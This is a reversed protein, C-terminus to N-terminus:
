TGLLKQLLEEVKALSAEPNDYDLDLYEGKIKKELEQMFIGKGKRKEEKVKIRSLSCSPSGAIGIVLCHADSKRVYDRIEEALKKCHERFGALKEYQDYTMKERKGLFSFEPCPMQLLSPHYRAIIRHIGEQIKKEFPFGEARVGQNLLCHSLILLFPKKM